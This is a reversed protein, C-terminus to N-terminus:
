GEKPLEYFNFTAGEAGKIYVVCDGWSAPINWTNEDSISTHRSTGRDCRIDVLELDGQIEGIGFARRLLDHTWYSNGGVRAPTVLMNPGDILGVLSEYHQRMNGVAQEYVSSQRAVESAELREFTDIAASVDRQQVLLAYLREYGVVVADPSMPESAGVPGLARELSERMANPDGNGSAELYAYNVWWFSADEALNARPEARLATLREGAQDVEGIRILDLVDDRAKAFEPRVTSPGEEVAFVFLTRREAQEVPKGNLTAPEFKRSRIVRLAEQEFEAGGSSDEIIPEIVGGDASIIFSVEVWGEFGKEEAAPPYVLESGELFTAPLYTSQAGEQARAGFAVLAFAILVPALGRM